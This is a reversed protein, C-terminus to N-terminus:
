FLTELLKLIYYATVGAKLCQAVLSAALLFYQKFLEHIKGIKREQKEKKKDPPILFGVWYGLRDNTKAGSYDFALPQLFFVSKGCM